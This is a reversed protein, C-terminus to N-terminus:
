AIKKKIELESYKSSLNQMSDVLPDDIKLFGSYNVM